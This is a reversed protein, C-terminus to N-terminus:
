PNSSFMPFLAQYVYNLSTSLRFLFYYPCTHYRDDDDDDDDDDAADAADDSM